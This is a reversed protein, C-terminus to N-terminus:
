TRAFTWPDAVWTNLCLAGFEPALAAKSKAERKRPSIREREGRGGRAPREWNQVRLRDGAEGRNIAMARSLMQITM